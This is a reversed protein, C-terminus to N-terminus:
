WEGLPDRNAPVITAGGGALQRLMAKASGSVVEHLTTLWIRVAEEQALGHPMSLRWWEGGFVLSSARRKIWSPSLAPLTLVELHIGAPRCGIWHSLDPVRRHTVILFERVDRRRRPDLSALARTWRSSDELGCRELEVEISDLLEGGLDAVGELLLSDRELIREARISRSV